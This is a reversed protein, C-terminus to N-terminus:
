RGRAQLRAILRDISGAVTRWDGLWARPFRLMIDAGDVRREHLCMAPTSGAQRTCRLLFREAAAPDYILDEGQYPSGDRFNQVSLGNPGVIPGDDIYRPYIEKLREMPPLTSDNAAITMFLRDTVDPADTPKPKVTADPPDLSPWLFSLDIRGQAGPRRQMPFRIAAPPVNFVVGGITIPLSPADPAVPAPLPWLMYAIPAGALGTVAMGLLIVLVRGLAGSLLGHRHRRRRGITGAHASMTGKVTRAAFRQGQM